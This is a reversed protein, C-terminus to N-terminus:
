MTRIHFFSSLVESRIWYNSVPQNAFVVLSYRQAAYIQVMNVVVPKTPITDAEIVTLNHGDISFKFNPSCSM